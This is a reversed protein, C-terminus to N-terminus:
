DLKLKSAKDLADEMYKTMTANDPTKKNILDTLLQRKFFVEVAHRISRFSMGKNQATEGFNDFTQQDKIFQEVFPYEIKGLRKQLAETLAAKEPLGFFMVESMRSCMAKDIAGISGDPNKMSNTTYLFVVNTYERMKNETWNKIMEIVNGDCGSDMTKRGILQDAEDVLVLFLENPKEKAKRCLDEFLADINQECGKQYSTAINGIGFEALNADLEKAVSTWFQTKGTGPPGYSLVANPLNIKLKKAQEPNKLIQIFSERVSKKQEELGSLDKLYPIDPNQSPKYFQLKKGGISLEEGAAGVGGAKIAWIIGGIAAALLSYKLINGFLEKRKEKKEQAPTLNKLVNSKLPVNTQTGSVGTNVPMMVSSRMAYPPYAPVPAYFGNHQPNSPMVPPNQGPMAIQNQPSPKQPVTFNGAPMSQKISPQVGYNGRGQPNSTMVPPNQGPMAIQNQPSPKQPVTFNGAPMSQKISPQVGYNGRGQPNSPMVPSTQGPAAPQRRYQMGNDARSRGANGNDSHAIIQPNQGQNIGNVM